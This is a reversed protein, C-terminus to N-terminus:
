KLKMCASSLMLFLFSLGLIM